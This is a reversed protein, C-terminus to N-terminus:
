ARRASVTTNQWIRLRERYFAMRAALLGSGLYASITIAILLGFVSGEALRFWIVGSGVSILWSLSLLGMTSWFNQRVIHFSAHLARLPGIGSIAIAENSFGLYIRAWFGVIIPIGFLFFGLPQSFYLVMGILCIFPLGLAVGVGFVIGIRGLIALAAQWTRQMWTSIAMTDGRVASALQTLFLASLPLMLGNVVFLALLLGGFGGVSVVSTSASTIQQPVEQVFWLGLPRSSTDITIIRYLTLVSNAAAVPDNQLDTNNGVTRYMTLVPIFNLRAMELRMDIQGMGKLLESPQMPTTVQSPPTSARVVDSMNALLPALSLQTGFWLYLNVVLPLVVLWPRRNIVAFGESLTDILSVTQPKEITM